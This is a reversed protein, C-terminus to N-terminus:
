KIDKRSTKPIEQFPPLMVPLPVEIVTPVDRDAELATRLANRLEDPNSLKIGEAGFERAINAFDPNQLQTGFIRSEFRVHQDHLSAGYANNQFVIAVINIKEQVATALDTLCYMFGGDGCTVVVRKDPNGVKAGLATPFAFGLTAFYGTNLYTHPQLVPYTLHGWHAVNEVGPIFIDDANLEERITRILSLQLPAVEELRTRIDDRIKALEESKWTSQSKAPLVQNLLELAARADSVIGLRSAYNRGIETSDVDIHILKQSLSSSISDMAPSLLRSGVALIIDAQYLTSDPGYGCYSVGLDLRHDGRIAGKGEPTTIVPANLKEAVRTLADTAGSCLVGGGAWIVPNAAGALLTAAQEIQDEDPMIVPASEPAQGIDVQDEVALIDRPIEIEVPRPRGSKLEFMAKRVMWPIDKVQRACHAWKTIPRFVDAQGVVEHLAGSGKGLATTNIQGSILLVPTSTAYATGIAASANLAGPGPVVLAVGVKGTTRAYGYAMYAATQEQRATIWRMGPQKHVSDLVGMLHEGPVGYIVEVGEHALSNILADSGTLKNM